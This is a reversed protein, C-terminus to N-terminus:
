DIMDAIYCMVETSLDSLSFQFDNSFDDIDLGEAYYKDDEKYIRHIKHLIIYYKGHVFEAPLEYVEDRYMGDEDELEDILKIENNKDLKQKLENEAEVRLQDIKEEYTM